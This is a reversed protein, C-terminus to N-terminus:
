EVGHAGEDDMKAGCHYCYLDTGEPNANMGRGCQNCRWIHFGGETREHMWRGHRVHAVDATWFNEVRLVAELFGMTYQDCGGHMEELFDHRRDLDIVLAERDIYESM